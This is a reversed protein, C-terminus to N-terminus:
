SPRQSLALLTITDSSIDLPFLPRVELHLEGATIIVHEGSEQVFYEACPDAQNLIRLGRILKPMDGVWPDDFDYPNFLISRFLSVLTRQNM